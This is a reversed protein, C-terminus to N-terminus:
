YGIGYGRKTMDNLITKQDTAISYAYPWSWYKDDVLWIMGGGLVQELDEFSLVTFIDTLYSRLNYTELDIHENYM